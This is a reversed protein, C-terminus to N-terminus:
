NGGGKENSPPPFFVAECEDKRLSFSHVTVGLDTAPVPFGLWGKNYLRRKM